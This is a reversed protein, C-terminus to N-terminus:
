ASKQNPKTGRKKPQNEPLSTLYSDIVFQHLQPNQRNAFWHTVLDPNYRIVRSNPRIFHVGEIMEQRYDKLTDPHVGLLKAM